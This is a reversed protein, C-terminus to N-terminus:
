FLSEFYYVKHSDQNIKQNPYPCKFRLDNVYNLRYSYPLRITPRRDASIHCPFGESSIFTKALANMLILNRHECGEIAVFEKGIHFTNGNCHLGRWHAYTNREFDFHYTMQYYGDKPDINDEQVFEPVIIKDHSDVFNEETETLSIYSSKDACKVNLQLFDIEKTITPILLSNPVVIGKFIEYKVCSLLFMVANKRASDRKGIYKGTSPFARPAIAHITELLQHTSM